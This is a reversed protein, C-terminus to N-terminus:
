SVRKVRTKRGRDAALWFSGMAGHEIHVMEGVNFRKGTEVESQIWVQQNDLTFILEGRASQGLAVIKGPLLAAPPTVAPAATSSITAPPPAATSSTAAATAPPTPKTISPEHQDRRHAIDATMGFQDAEIKPLRSVLADFCALRQEPQSERACTRLSDATPDGVAATAIRSALTLVLIGTTLRLQHMTTLIDM